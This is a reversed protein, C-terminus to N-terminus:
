GGVYGATNNVSLAKFVVQCVTTKRVRTFDPSLATDSACCISIRISKNKKKLKQKTTNSLISGMSKLNQVM